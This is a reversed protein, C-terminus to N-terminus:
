PQPAAQPTPTTQPDPQPATPTATQPAAPQANSDAPPNAAPAADQQPAPQQQPTQQQVAYPGAMAPKVAAPAAAPEAPGDASDASLTASSVGTTRDSYIRFLVSLDLLEAVPQGNKMAPQFTAKRIAAVANEDLGFGIPREAAIQHPTGDAGIVVRYLAMGVINNNQAYENSAPAISTLLKAQQDVARSHFVSGDHPDFRKGNSQSQYYLQWFEPLQSRMTTDLAPSFIRELADNLIQAIQSFNKVNGSDEGNAADGNAAPTAPAPSAAPASPETTEPSPAAASATAPHSDKASKEVKVGKEVKARAISIRMPHKPTLNIQEVENATSEYPLNGLFHLAYRKGEIEVRRSDWDVSTIEVLSLTFSGTKPDNTPLGRETFSLSDGLWGGRLFFQKGVLRERLIDLTVPLKAGNPAVAAVTVAKPEAAVQPAGSSEPPAAAPQPSQDQQAPPQPQPQGPTQQAPAPQQTAPAQAIAALPLAILAAAGIRRLVTSASSPLLPLNPPIAM